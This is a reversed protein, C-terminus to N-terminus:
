PWNIKNNMQFLENSIFDVIDDWVQTRARLDTGNDDYFLEFEQYIFELDKYNLFITVKSKNYFILYQPQQFGRECNVYGIFNEENGKYLISVSVGKENEGIISNKKLSKIVKPSFNPEWKCELEANINKENESFIYGKSKCGVFSCLGLIVAIVKLKLDIKL